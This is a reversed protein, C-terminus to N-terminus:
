WEELTWSHNKELKHWNDTRLIMFEHYPERGTAMQMYERWGQIEAIQWTIFISANPNWKHGGIIMQRQIGAM